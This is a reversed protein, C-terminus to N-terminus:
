HFVRIAQLDALPQLNFTISPQLIQAGLLLLLGGADGCICPQKNAQWNRILLHERCAPSSASQSEVICCRALWGTYLSRTFHYAWHFPGVVRSSEDMVRELQLVDLDPLADSM